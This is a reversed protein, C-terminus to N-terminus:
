ELRTLAEVVAAELEQQQSATMEDSIRVVCTGHVTHYGNSFITGDFTGLYENRKNADDENAYVEVAGGGETGKDIVENAVDGSAYVEDQDVYDSLFYVTATYGGQKNLKGNPDMDETVAMPTQVHEVGTLRQIVFADTPNTIQEHQKISDLLAQKATAIAELQASYDTAELESAQATIEEATAAMEPATVKAAQAASVAEECATMCADDLPKIESAMAETVDAIAADVEANKEELAASAAEFATQADKKAQDCGSLLSLTLAIAVMVLLAVVRRNPHNM